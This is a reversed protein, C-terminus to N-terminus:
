LTDRIVRFANEFAIKDIESATFDKELGELLLQTGGCDGWEM